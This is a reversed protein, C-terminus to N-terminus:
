AAVKRKDAGRAVITGKLMRNVSATAVRLHKAIAQQKVGERALELALLHQLLGITMDLKRELDAGDNKV